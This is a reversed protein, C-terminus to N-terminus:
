SGDIRREGYVCHWLFSVFPDAGGVLFTGVNFPWDFIRTAAVLDTLTIVLIREM